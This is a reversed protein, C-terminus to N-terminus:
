PTAESSAPQELAHEVARCCAGVREVDSPLVDRLSYRAHEFAHTLEILDSEAELVHPALCPLYEAPTMSPSRAIGHEAAAELVMVYLQQVRERPTLAGRRRRRRRAASVQRKARRQAARERLEHVAVGARKWLGRLWAWLKHLMDGPRFGAFLGWRDQVFSFLAYAAGGVVIVWFVISRVLQMWAAPSGGVDGVPLPPEIEPRAPPAQAPEGKFLSLILQFVYGVMLLASIIVYAGVYIVWQVVQTVAKLLSVSYGRPLVAAVIAVLGLSIGLWMVWRRGLRGLVPIKQVEWTAVLTAYRMESILALGLAFYGLLNVGLWRVNATPVVSMEALNIHAIGTIVLMVAGGGLFIRTVRQSNGSRDPRGRSPMSSLLDYAPDTPSVARELPDVELALLSRGLKRATVWMGALLAGSLLFSLDLLRWPEETWLRLDAVFSSWGYALSSALRLIVLITVAEAIRLRATEEIHQDPLSLLRETYISELSVLFALVPLWAGPWTLDVNRVAGYCALGISGLMAAALFARFAFRGPSHGRNVVGSM